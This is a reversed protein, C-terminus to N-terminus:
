KKKEFKVPLNFLVAVPKGNQTGPIWKPMLNIVRIVEEDYSKNLGRLIKADAISGDEKVIFSVYVTGEIGEKEAEAPINLNENFFRIRENEGGPFSPM